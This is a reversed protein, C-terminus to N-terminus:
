KCMKKPNHKGKGKKATNAIETMMKKLDDFNQTESLTAGVSYITDDLVLSFSVQKVFRVTKTDTDEEKKPPQPIDYYWFLAKKGNALDMKEMGLEVRRKFIGSLYEAEGLAYKILIKLDETDNDKYKSTPALLTQMMHEQFMIVRANQTKIVKGKLKIFFHANDTENIFFSAKEDCELVTQAQSACICLMWFLFTLIQTKM